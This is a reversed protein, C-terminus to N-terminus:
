KLYAYLDIMHGNPDKVICYRQGWFANWPEKVIEFGSSKLNNAIVDIENVSDFLIAFTSCNSAIPVYGLISKIMDETDIMLKTDNDKWINEVHQEKVKSEDFQFGLIKFFEISKNMDKTTVSVSSIRM